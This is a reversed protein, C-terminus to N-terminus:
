VSLSLVLFVAVFALLPAILALSMRQVEVRREYGVSETVMLTASAGFAASAPPAVAAGDAAPVDAAAGGNVALIAAPLKDLANLSQQEFTLVGAGTNEEAGDASDARGVSLARALTAFMDDLSSAGRVDAIRRTEAECTEDLSADMVAFDGRLQRRLTTLGRDVALWKVAEGHFAFTLHLNAHVATASPYMAAMSKKFEDARRWHSRQVVHHPRVARLAGSVAIDDASASASAAAAAAAAAVDPDDKTRAGSFLFSNRAADAQFIQRILNPRRRLPGSGEEGGATAVLGGSGRTPASGLSPRSVAKPSARHREPSLDISGSMAAAEVVASRSPVGGLGAGSEAVAAVRDNRPPKSLKGLLIAHKSITGIPLLWFNLESESGATDAQDRAANIDNEAMMASATVSAVEELLDAPVPPAPQPLFSPLPPNRVSGSRRRTPERPSPSEVTLLPQVSKNLSLTPSDERMASTKVEQAPSPVGAYSLSSSRPRSPTSDLLLLFEKEKESNGNAAGMVNDAEKVRRKPKGIVLEVPASGSASSTDDECDCDSSSPRGLDVVIPEDGASKEHRGKRRTKAEGSGAGGTVSGASTGAPSLSDARDGADVPAKVKEKREKRHKRADVEDVEKREPKDKKGGKNLKRRLSREESGLIDKEDSDSVPDAPSLGTVCLELELEGAVKESLKKRRALTFWQAVVVGDHTKALPILVEGAFKASAADLPSELPTPDLQALKKRRWVVVQLWLHMRSTDEPREAITHFALGFDVSGDDAPKRVPLPSVSGYLVREGDEESASSSATTASAASDPRLLLQVRAYWAGSTTGLNRAARVHGDVVVAGAENLQRVSAAALSSGTHMPALAVAMPTHALKAGRAAAPVADSAGALASAAVSRGVSAAARVGASADAAGGAAAPPLPPLAKGSAKKRAHASADDGSVASPLSGAARPPQEAPARSEGVEDSSVPRRPKAATPKSLPSPPVSSPLPERAPSSPASSSNSRGSLARKLGKM